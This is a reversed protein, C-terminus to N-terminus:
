FKFLIYVVKLTGFHRSWDTKGRFNDCFNLPKLSLLAIQTSAAALGVDEQENDDRWHFLGSGPRQFSGDVAMPQSDIQIFKFLNWIFHLMM